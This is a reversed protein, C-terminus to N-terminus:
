QKTLKNELEIAKPFLINNELHIHLYLDSEFENILSNFHNTINKESLDDHHKDLVLKIKNLMSTASEHEVFMQQIPNRVTGYNRSKPRENFRESDFLYRILPFMMKEEKQMHMIMERNLQYILQFLESEQLVIERQIRYEEIKNLADKVFLHHKKEIYTTLERLDMNDPSYEKDSDNVLQLLQLIIKKDPTDIKNLADALTQAPNRFFPINYSYFVKAATINTNIIEGLTLEKISDANISLREKKM